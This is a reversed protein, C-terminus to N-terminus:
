SSQLRHFVMFKLLEVPLLKGLRFTKDIIFAMKSPSGNSIFNM